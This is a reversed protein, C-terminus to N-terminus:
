VAGGTRSARSRRLGFLLALLGLAGAGWGAVARNSSAASTEPAHTDLHIDLEGALLDTENGAIVTATVTLSGEPAPAPLEAEFEGQALRQLSLKTGGVEVELKADKVPSNDAAHDLYLTLKKGDLVGVLEFLDSTAAFRPQAPGSAAAPAEGHDHGDGALAVPSSMGLLMALYLLKFNPLHTM